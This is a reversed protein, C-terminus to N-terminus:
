SLWYVQFDASDSESNTGTVPDTGCPFGGLVETDPPQLEVLCFHLLSVNLSPPM